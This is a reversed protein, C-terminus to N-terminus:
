NMDKCMATGFISKQCGTTCCMATDTGKGCCYTGPTCMLPADESDRCCEAGKSLCTGGCCSDTSLCCEKGGCCVSGETCAMECGEDLRQLANEESMSRWSTHGKHPAQALLALALITVVTTVACMPWARPAPRPSEQFGDEEALLTHPTTAM